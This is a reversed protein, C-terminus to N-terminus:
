SRSLIALGIYADETLPFETKCCTFRNFPGRPAQKARERDRERRRQSKEYKIGRRDIVSIAIVTAAFRSHTHTQTYRKNGRLSFNLTQWQPREGISIPLRQLSTSVLFLYVGRLDKRLNRIELCSQLQCVFSKCIIRKKNQFRM